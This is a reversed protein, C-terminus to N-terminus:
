DTDSRIPTSSVETQIDSSSRADLKELFENVKGAIEEADGGMAFKAGIGILETLQDAAKLQASAPNNEDSMIGLYFHLLRQHYRTNVIPADLLKEAARRLQEYTKMDVKEKLVCEIEAKIQHKRAGAAMRDAVYEIIKEDIVQCTAMPPGTAAGTLRGM